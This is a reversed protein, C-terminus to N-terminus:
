SWRAYHMQREDRIPNLNEGSQRCDVMGEVQITAIKPTRIPPPTPCHPPSAHLIPILFGKKKEFCSLFVRKCRAYGLWMSTSPSGDSVQEAQYQAQSLIVEVRNKKHNARLFPNICRKKMTAEMKRVARHMTTMGIKLGAREMVATLQCVTQHIQKSNTALIETKKAAHADADSWGEEPKHSRNRTRPDVAARGQPVLNPHLESRCWVGEHAHEHCRAAVSPDPPLAM